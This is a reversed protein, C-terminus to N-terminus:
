KESQDDVLHEAGDPVVLSFFIVKEARDSTSLLFILFSLPFDPKARYNPPTLHAHCFCVEKLETPCKIDSIGASLIDYFIKCAYHLGLKCGCTRDTLTQYPADLLLYPLTPLDFSRKYGLGHGLPLHNPSFFFFSSSFLLKCYVEIKSSLRFNM